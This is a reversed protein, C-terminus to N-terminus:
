PLVLDKVWQTPGPISCAHHISALNMVVSGCHSSGKLEAKIGNRKGDDVTKKKKKMGDAAKEQEYQQSNM